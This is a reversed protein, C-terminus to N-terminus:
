SVQILLRMMLWASSWLFLMRPLLFLLPGSAPARQLQSVILLPSHFSICDSLSYLFLERDVGYAKTIAKAKGRLSIPAM